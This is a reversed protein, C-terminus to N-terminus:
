FYSLYKEMGRTMVIEGNELVFLAEAGYKEALEMGKEAGLIFCATSLADSILGDKALITVGRVGSDAPYGTKPDLIHHYRVGDVEAYREYDGSTSVCWQGELSLIAVNSSTDAPNMIGVKWTSGDPKKGYTLISGGLSIVAGSIEPNRELLDGLKSLALGKGAAGLDLQMGEPMFLRPQEGEETKLRDSGCGALAQRLEEPEPLQFEGEQRGAAWQDINWLRVVPGITVDFAGESDRYVELCQELIDWLERSLVIGEERGAEANVRYVESGELRWSLLDGELTELLGMVEGFFEEAAEESGCYLTQQIVTGMATDVYQRAAIDSAAEERGCAGCVIVPFLWLIRKFFTKM